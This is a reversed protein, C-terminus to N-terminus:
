VVELALADFSLGRSGYDVVVEVQYLGAAAPMRWRLRHGDRALVEGGTVNWSFAQTGEFGTVAELEVERGRRSVLVIRAARRESLPLDGALAVEVGTPLITFTFTRSVSCLTSGVLGRLTGSLVFSGSTVTDDALDIIVNLPDGPSVPRATGGVVSEIRVEAWSSLSSNAITVRLERGALTASARLSQGAGVGAAACDFPPPPPDVAGGDRCTSLGTTALVVGAGSAVRRARRRISM